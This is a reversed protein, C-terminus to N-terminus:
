AAKAVNQKERAGAATNLFTQMPTKGFGGAVRTHANNTISRWGSM